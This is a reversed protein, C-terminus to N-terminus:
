QDDQFYILHVGCSKIKSEQYYPGFSAQLHMYQNFPFQDSFSIKPYYVLLVQNSESDNIEHHHDCKSGPIKVVNNFYEGEDFKLSISFKKSQHHLCFFVFGNFHDDKYWNMPLEIRIQSGMERHQVWRPIGNGGLNISRCELPPQVTLLLM